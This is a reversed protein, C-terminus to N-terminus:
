GSSLAVLQRLKKIEFPPAATGLDQPYGERKTRDHHSLTNFSRAGLSDPTSSRRAGGRDVEVLPERFSDNMIKVLMWARMYSMLGHSV